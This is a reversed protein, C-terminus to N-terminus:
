QDNPQINAGALNDRDDALDTLVAAQPAHERVAEIVDMGTGDALDYGTVVCVVSDSQLRETAAEVTTAEIAELTEEDDIAATVDDIREDDDVCLVTRSLDATEETTAKSM